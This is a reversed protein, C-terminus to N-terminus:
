CSSGWCTYKNCCCANYVGLIGIQISRFDWHQHGGTNTVCGIRQIARGPDIVIRYETNTDPTDHQVRSIHANIQVDVERTANFEASIPTPLPAWHQSTETALTWQKSVV